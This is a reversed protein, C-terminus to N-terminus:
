RSVDSSEPGANQSVQLREFLAGSDEPWIAGSDNEAQVYVLRYEEQSDHRAAVGAPTRGLRILWHEEFLAHGQVIQHLLRPLVLLRIAGFQWAGDITQRGAEAAAHEAVGKSETRYEVGGGEGGGKGKM